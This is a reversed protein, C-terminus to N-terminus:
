EGGAEEGGDGGEGGGVDAGVGEEAPLAEGHRGGEERARQRGENAQSVCTLVDDVPSSLACRGVM